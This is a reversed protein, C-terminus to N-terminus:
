GVSTRVSRSLSLSLPSTELHQAHCPSTWSPSPSRLISPPLRVLSQSTSRALSQLIFVTLDSAVSSERVFTSKLIDKITDFIGRRQLAAAAAAQEPTITFNGPADPANSGQILM